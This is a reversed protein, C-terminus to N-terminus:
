REKVLAELATFLEDFCPDVSADMVDLTEEIQQKALTLADEVIGCDCAKGIFFSCPEEHDVFYTTMM